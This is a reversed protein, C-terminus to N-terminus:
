EMTYLPVREFLFPQGDLFRKIMALAYPQEERLSETEAPNPGHHAYNEIMSILFFRELQTMWHNPFPRLSAYGQCLAQRGDPTLGLLPQVLDYLYFGFGCRGFDIARPQGEHFLINGQHLDGHIFGHSNQEIPLEKLWELLPITVDCYLELEQDDVFASAYQFFRESASQFSDFGWVPRQFSPPPQFTESAGHLRAILEGERFAEELTVAEESHSGEVWQMLTASCSPSDLIELTIALEGNQFPIGHPLPFDVKSHLDELWTLESKLEALSTDPHLRLLKIGDGHEIKFTCADSLQLFRISSWDLGSQQLASLAAQKFQNLRKSSHLPVPSPNNSTSM